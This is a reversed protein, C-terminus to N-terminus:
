AAAKMTQQTFYATDPTRGGLASHPRKSNFFDLYESIGARAAAVTEHAQPCVHEYKVSRWLREIFV